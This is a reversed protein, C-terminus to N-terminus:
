YRLNSQELKWEKGEKQADDRERKLRERLLETQNPKKANDMEDNLSNAIRVLLQVRRKAKSITDKGHPGGISVSEIRDVQDGAEKIRIAKHLLKIEEDYLTRNGIM